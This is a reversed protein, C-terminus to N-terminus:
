ELFTKQKQKKYETRIQRVLEVLERIVISIMIYEPNPVARLETLLRRWREIIVPHQEVWENIRSLTDLSNDTNRLIAITIKRQQMDLDDRLAARALADWQNQVIRSMVQERLWTFDLYEGVAFYVIAVDKSPLDYESAAAIVDLLTYQNKIGAMRIAVEEPIGAERFLNVSQEWEEHESGVLLGSLLGNLEDIGKKYLSITKDINLQHEKANRLLWRSSRRILRVIQGMTEYRIESSTKPSLQEILHVLERMSFIREAIIYARVIADLQAGTENQMRYVFLLGMDNVMANSIQTAIIERRLSHQSMQSHFQKRLPVPFALEVIDKFVPDAVVDAALLETKVLIKTYALLVAIEPSMLGINQAKREVLIKDDPLFELARDIKDTRALYDIYDRYLDIDVKSQLTMLNIARTQNYNDQLVLESVETTMDALLINRQKVTLDGNEVVENLLIKSNVEHDSCDVGGSNDIFDTYILGAGLAYEVRALQTFGLNGGEGVSHCRLDNGNVRVADNTRDGVDAHREQSSKVYTGIGGNWLLDVEATLIARILMNPEISDQSLKLLTKIEATLKIAKVSRKFVGGGQSILEPNYDEWTSRPLQFLRKREEYSVHPSPNPDLFIHMHNFAAVLKIHQSLLMGNGFVDGSMDGIGVVTFDDKDPDIDLLLFHRKVSEWAGRATIGMKKHDYGTSGGSAFADGLWFKYEAAVSNAIDSFTATGKDAAVVLYPDDDDYRVTNEPPIVMGGHLNDTLDLLGRIFTIYCSIVEEMIAERTGEEPLSKVVFGGKAGAPVIVANKVQQAKMLGLIETRFDERRDSWRIGGRAVKAARLHVGEVRPSYIFIEYVPRPLPLDVIRNPDLKFAFWPKHQGNSDKQFYNTRLTARIVELLRRLIRDEDLNAVADLAVYLKQKIDEIAQQSTGHKEPDFQLKFLEVLYGAITSNKAFTTEIYAQSFTFGIQKLYKTYARILAADRWSIGAGLVLRNFGDNEAEGNWVRDFAEQFQNRINEVDLEVNTDLVMGFDNIWVKSGGKFIVEHPREEIVRLGMNELMPLVDSLVIPDNAQFLKFRLTGVPADVPRYFNMELKHDSSLKEIHEIDYVAIRPVFDDRYSAPFAKEYKRGLENGKEDGYYSLLDERLEDKWSRGAEILKAEIEHTNYIIEKNPDTRILIHIRVLAMESFLPFSAIELGSFADLLIDEIAQSLETNFQDRPVYVLCSVFRRYADQRVFLRIQHREQIHLVGLVLETLEDTNAQLLDDRPLTVLIDMIKKGSHGKLPLKSNQLVIEVKRRLFPIDKPHSNYATSTYLGIFRREGIVEGNAGFRKVGIYDTYVPRHVTSKTNTKSIVLVQKAFALDRAAPPLSSVPRVTKSKEERRLVGLGSGPVTYLAQNEGEGELKYDRCGLYTFHDDDLWRLFDEAERIDDSNYPPPNKELEMLAEQMKERIKAWDDVALRVDALVRELGNKLEELIKPDSHRDVEIYIPAEPVVGQEPMAMPPLVDIVQFEANRCLKVGGLHIMFYIKFGQRDIEMRLSDVLFPMDDNAVEIITHPSQWGNQEFNPNYVRIKCKGPERECILNWHSLLAGYLDPIERANLDEIPVNAYYQNVFITLLKAEEAPLKKDIIALIRAIIEDRQAFTPNMM